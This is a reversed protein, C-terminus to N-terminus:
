LNQIKMIACVFSVKRNFYLIHSFIGVDFIVIQPQLGQQARTFSALRLQFGPPVDGQKDRLDLGYCWARLYCGLQSKWLKKISQLVPRDEIM